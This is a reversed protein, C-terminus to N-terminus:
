LKFSMKIYGILAYAWHYEEIRIYCMWEGGDEEGM